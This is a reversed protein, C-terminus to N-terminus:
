SGFSRTSGKLLSTSTYTPSSSTKTWSGGREGTHSTAVLIHLPYSLLNSDALIENSVLCSCSVGFSGLRNCYRVMWVIVHAFHPDSLMQHLKAPFNAEVKKHRELQGAHQLYRSFDRYTHDVMRSSRGGGSNSVSGGGSDSM